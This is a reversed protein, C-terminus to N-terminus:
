GPATSGCSTRIVHLPLLGVMAAVRLHSRRARDVDGQADTNSDLAKQINPANDKILHELPVAVGQKGLKLVDAQTFADVWPILLFLDPYDGSALAIQRKEKAPGGDFTTTQWSSSSRSSTM